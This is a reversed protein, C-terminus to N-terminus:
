GRARNKARMLEERLRQLRDAASQTPAGQVIMRQVTAEQDALDREINKLDRHPLDRSASQSM